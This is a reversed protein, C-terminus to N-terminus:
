STLWCQTTLLLFFPCRGSESCKWATCNSCHPTGHSLSVVSVWQTPSTFLIFLPQRISLQTVFKGVSEDASVCSSSISQKAQSVFVRRSMTTASCVFITYHTPRTEGILALKVSDLHYGIVNLPVFRLFLKLMVYRLLAHKFQLGSRAQMWPSVESGRSVNSKNAFSFLSLGFPGSHYCYILCLHVLKFVVSSNNRTRYAIVCCVPPTCPIIFLRSLWM